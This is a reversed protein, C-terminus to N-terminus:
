AAVAAGSRFWSAPASHGVGDFACATTKCVLCDPSGNDGAVVEAIAGDSRGCLTRGSTPYMAHRVADDDIAIALLEGFASM